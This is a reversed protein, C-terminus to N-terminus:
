IGTECFCFTSPMLKFPPPYTPSPQDTRTFSHEIEEEGEMEKSKIELRKGTM